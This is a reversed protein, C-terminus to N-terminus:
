FNGMWLKRQFMPYPLLWTHWVPFFCLFCKWPPKAKLFHKPSTKANLLQDWLCLRTTSAPCGRELVPVTRLPSTRQRNDGLRAPSTHGAGRGQSPCCQVGWHGPVCFAESMEGRKNCCGDPVRVQESTDPVAWLPKIALSSAIYISLCFVDCTSSEYVSHYHLPCLSFKWMRHNSNPATSYVAFACGARLFVSIKRPYFVWDTSLNKRVTNM